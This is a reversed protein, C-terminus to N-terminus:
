YGLFELHMIVPYHDSYTIEEKSYKHGKITKDHFIYDIRFKKNGRYTYMLGKGCEKFGDILEGKMTNYVYSYPVDNFDGCVITSINSSKIEEAVVEAQNARVMMGITYNDYITSILKNTEINHGSIKMKNAKGITRNFGTTELHVNFVKIVKGNIDVNAWMASNNTNDFPINKTATIPYRSFIVMDKEGYEMYPFYEKYSDSNLTSGYSNNYEQICLIDIQRKKMDSLIGHSIFGSTEQNFRAVNYSAIRIDTKGEPEYENFWGTQYITGIYPICGIISVVPIACWIWKRSILWYILLIFNFIILLPLIYVMMANATNGIPSVNGGFIGVLTFISIIIQVILIMTTAYKKLALKGM